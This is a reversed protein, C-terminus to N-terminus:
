LTPFHREAAPLTPVEDLNVASLDEQVRHFFSVSHLELFLVAFLDDDFVALHGHIMEPNLHEHGAVQCRCLFRSRCSAFADEGGRGGSGGADPRRSYCDDPIRFPQRSDRSGTRWPRRPARSGLLAEVTAQDEASLEVSDELSGTFSVQGCPVNPDGTVKVGSFHLPAAGEEEDGGGGEPDLEEGRHYCVNVLEIGHSGYTGKFIGPQIPLGVGGPGPGPSLSPRLGGPRVRKFQQSMVGFFTTHFKLTSLHSLAEAWHADEADEVGERGVFRRLRENGAGPDRSVDVVGDLKVSLMGSSPDTRFHTVEVGSPSGSSRPPFFLDDVVAFRVGGRGDEEEEEEEPIYRVSLVEFPRLPAMVDEGRPPLWQFM